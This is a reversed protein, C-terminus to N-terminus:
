TQSRTIPNKSPQDFFIKKKYIVYLVYLMYCYLLYVLVVLMVVITVQEGFGVCVDKV